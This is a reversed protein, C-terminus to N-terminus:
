SPVTSKDLGLNISLRLTIAVTVHSLGKISNKRYCNNIEIYNLIKFSFHYLIREERGM